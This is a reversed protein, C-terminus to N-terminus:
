GKGSIHDRARAIQDARAVDTNMYDNRCATAVQKFAEFIQTLDALSKTMADRAATETTTFAACEPVGGGCPRPQWGALADGKPPTLQAVFDDAARPELHAGDM